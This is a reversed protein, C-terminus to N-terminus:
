RILSWPSIVLHSTPRDALVSLALFLAVFMWALVAWGRATLPGPRLPRRM